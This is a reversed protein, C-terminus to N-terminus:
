NIPHNKKNGTDPFKRVPLKEPGRDFVISQRWYHCRNVLDSKLLQRLHGSPHLGDLKFQDDLVMKALIEAVANNYILRRAFRQLLPYYYAITTEPSTNDKKM